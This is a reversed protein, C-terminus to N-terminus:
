KKPAEVIDPLETKQVGVIVKEGTEKGDPGVPKIETVQTEDRKKESRVKSM